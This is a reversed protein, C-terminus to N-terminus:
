ATAKAALDRAALRAHTQSGILTAAAQEPTRGADLQDNLERTRETRLNRRVGAIFREPNGTCANPEKLWTARAAIDLALEIGSSSSGPPRNVLDDDDLVLGIDPRTPDPRTPAENQEREAEMNAEPKSGNHKRRAVGSAVGGLRGANVKVEHKKAREAEVEARTPNYDLYDHVVYGRRDPDRHWIGVADLKQALKRPSRRDSLQGLAGDPIFGDTLNRNCYAIGCVHLWAADGGVEAIKPHEPFTDELRVWAM